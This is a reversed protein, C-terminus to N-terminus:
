LHAVIELGNQKTQFYQKRPVFNYTQKKMVDYLKLKITSYHLHLYWKLFQAVNLYTAKLVNSICHITATITLPMLADLKACRRQQM